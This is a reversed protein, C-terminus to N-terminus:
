WMGTYRLIRPSETLAITYGWRLLHPFVSLLWNAHQADRKVWCKITMVFDDREYYQAQNKDLLTRASLLLNVWQVSTYNSRKAIHLMFMLLLQAATCSCCHVLPCCWRRTCTAPVCLGVVVSLHVAVACSRHIIRYVASVPYPDALWQHVTSNCSVLCEWLCSRIDIDYSYQSSTKLTRLHLSCNINRNYTNNGRKAIHRM